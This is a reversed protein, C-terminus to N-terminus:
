LCPLSHKDTIYCGSRNAIQHVQTLNFIPLYLANEVGCVMMRNDLM